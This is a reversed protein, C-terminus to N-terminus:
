SDAELDVRVLSYSPALYGLAISRKWSRVKIPKSLETPCTSGSLNSDALALIDPDRSRVLMANPLAARLVAYAFVDDAHFTGDHTVVRM